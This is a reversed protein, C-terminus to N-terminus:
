ARAPEPADLVAQIASAALHVDERMLRQHSSPVTRLVVGASSFARWYAASRETEGDATPTILYITQSIRPPRSKKMMRYYARVAPPLAANARAAALAALARNWWGADARAAPPLWPDLLVVPGFAAPGGEAGAALALALPAAVCEAVLATRGRLGWAALEDRVAAAQSDLSDWAPPSPNLVGSAAALLPRSTALLEALAHCLHIENPGGWGGPIFLVPDQCGQFRLPHLFIGPERRLPAAAPAQKERLRLAMRHVTLGDPFDGAHLVAGTEARLRLFLQMLRLSDGGVWFFDDDPGWSHHGLVAEWAAAVTREAADAPVGAPRPSPPTATALAVRDVKGSPLLPLRDMFRFEAPVQSPPLEELLWARLEGADAEAALCAVLRPEPGPVAVVAAEAVAPHANLRAEALAPDVAHGLIKVVQDTRGVCYLRGDPGRRGRDGTRCARGGGAPTFFKAATREPDNWYGPSLYDSHVIIEGESEAPRGGADVLELRTGPPPDGVPVDPGEWTTSHRIPFWAYNMTETSSLSNILLTGPAFHRRFLAADSARLPETGLRVARLAAPASRGDLAEVYRRFLSASSTFLTIRREEVWPPLASLGDEPWPFLDLLAGHLLATFLNAVGQGLALSSLSALRDQPGADLCRGWHFANRLLNRHTQIVGKPRGTSGSTHLIYAPDSPLAACADRLPEPLPGDVAVVAASPAAARAAERGAEATLLVAPATNDLMARRGAAPLSAPVPVCVAGAQLAGLWGAVLDPGDPLLLAVRCGPAAGSAALAAALGAARRDLEGYTLTERGWAVAPRDRHRDVVEAFRRPISAEAADM